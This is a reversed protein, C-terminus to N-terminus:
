DVVEEPQEKEFRGCRVEQGTHLFMRDCACDAMGAFHLHVEEGCPCSVIIDPKGREDV